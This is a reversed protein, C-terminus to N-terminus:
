VRDELVKQPHELQKLWLGLKLLLVGLKGAARRSMNPSKPLQALLQRKEMELHLKRNRMEVEKEYLHQNTLM